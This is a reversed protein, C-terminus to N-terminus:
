DALHALLVQQMKMLEMDDPLLPLLQPLVSMAEQYRGGDIMARLAEKM